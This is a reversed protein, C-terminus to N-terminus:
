TMVVCCRTEGTSPTRVQRNITNRPSLFYKCSCTLCLRHSVGSWRCPYAWVSSFPTAWSVVCQNQKKEDDNELSLEQERQRKRFNIKFVLLILTIGGSSPLQSTRSSSIKLSFITSSNGTVNAFIWFRRTSFIVLLLSFAIGKSIASIRVNSSNSQPFLGWKSDTGALHRPSVSLTRKVRRTWRPRYSAIKFHKKQRVPSTNITYIVINTHTLHHLCIM